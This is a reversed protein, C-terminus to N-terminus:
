HSAPMQEEAPDIRVPCVKLEATHTVPDYGSGTLINVPVDSFSFSAFVTGRPSRQTAKVRIKVTGRASTMQCWGGDMLGWAQVDNPNVELAEESLLYDIGQSRGTQTRTHYSALRRGTTLWVPFDNDITEAPDRYYIRTFIGRGNEFKDEHLM